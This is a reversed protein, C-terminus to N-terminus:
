RCQRNVSQCIIDLQYVVDIPM